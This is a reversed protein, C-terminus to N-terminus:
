KPLHTSIQADTAIALGTSSTGPTGDWLQDGFYLFLTDNIFVARRTTAQDVRIGPDAEYDLQAQTFTSTLIVTLFLFLKKM